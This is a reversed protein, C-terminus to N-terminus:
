LDIGMYIASCYVCRDGYLSGMINCGMLARPTVTGSGDCNVMGVDQKVGKSGYAKQVKSIM